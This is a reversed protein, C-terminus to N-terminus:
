VRVGNNFWARSSQVFRFERCVNRQRGNKTYTVNIEVRHHVCWSDPPIDVAYVAFEELKPKIENNLKIRALSRYQEADHKWHNRNIHKRVRTLANQIQEYFPESM